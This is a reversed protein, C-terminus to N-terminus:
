NKERGRFIKHLTLRIEEKFTQFSKNMFGDPDPM